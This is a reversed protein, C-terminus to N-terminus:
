KEYEKRRLLASGLLTVSLTAAAFAALMVYGAADGTAPANGTVTVTCVPPVLVASASKASVTYTGADLTLTVKGDADTKFSTDKGNVTIVADAVPKVVPNWSADYGASSLTLTLKEGAASKATNVNFFSYADSFATTDTYVFATLYDGNKVPDTLGMASVNNLYYGYSGGNAVGWLKTISLGYSGSTAAYGAAAGGAFGAEHALYLADNITLAGDKDVDTVTVAKQTMVLSGNAITVYVTATSDAALSPLCFLAAILCIAALVSTVKTFKM